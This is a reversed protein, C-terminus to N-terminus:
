KGKKGGAARVASSVAMSNYASQVKANDTMRNLTGANGMKALTSLAKSDMRALAPFANPNIRGVKAITGPPLKSLTAARKADISALTNATPGAKSARKEASWVSPVALSFVVLLMLMARSIVKLNM